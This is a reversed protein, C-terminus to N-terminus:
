SMKMAPGPKDPQVLGPVSGPAVAVWIGLGVLAVWIGVYWGLAGLATGPGADMGRMREITIIWAVLAGALVLVTPALPRSLARMARSLM